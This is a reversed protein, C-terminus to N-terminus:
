TVEAIDSRAVKRVVQKEYHPKNFDPCTFHRCRWIKMSDHRSMISACRKCLRPKFDGRM